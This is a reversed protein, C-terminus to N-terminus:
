ALKENPTGALSEVYKKIKPVSKKPCVLLVDKTNIVLMGELDIGVVLQGNLYNFVLNDKSDILEVSGKTVNEDESGALAEKLAEWAGIDSWGIDVSLVLGSKPDLKELIANDFSVKEITPYVEDLVKEYEKTESADSIRKLKEFLDPALKEFLKWLFEPTTVFYGLYWAHKGDELFIKATEEDPRYKFGKFEYVPMDGEKKVEGGFEIYGLNVSPFRPKQGVFVIKEPSEEILKGAVKLAKKFEDDKKILHDGWLIAIQQNPFKKIFNAIALGVAPGVDRMAPEFILNAEPIEPFQRRLIDEYEINTSIYIDSWDFDPFLKLVAIQLMSKDDMIKEFQKPSNKRSLPWLRTGVGGAFVVIKM